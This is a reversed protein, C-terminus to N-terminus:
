EEFMVWRLTFGASKITEAAARLFDLAKDDPEHVMVVDVRIERAQADEVHETIEGSEIFALYSNLKEQLLFLHQDDGWELHDTITLVCAGSDEEVSIADISQTQRVSM